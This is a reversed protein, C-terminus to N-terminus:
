DNFSEGERKKADNITVNESESITVITCYDIADATKTIAEALDERGDPRRLFMNLHLFFMFRNSKSCNLSMTLRDLSIFDDILFSYIIIIVIRENGQERSYLFCGITTIWPKQFLTRM